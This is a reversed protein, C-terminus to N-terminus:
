YELFWGEEVRWLASVPVYCSPRCVVEYLDENWFYCKIIKCYNQFVRCVGEEFGAALMSGPSRGTKSSFNEPDAALRSEYSCGM